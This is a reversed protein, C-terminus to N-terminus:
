YIPHPEARDDRQRPLPTRGSVPEVAQEAPHANLPLLTDSLARVVPINGAGPLPVTWVRHGSARLLAALQGPGPTGPPAPMPRIPEPDGGPIRRRMSEWIHGNAFYRVYRDALSAVEAPPRARAGACRPRVVGAVGACRPRVVGAAGACRPQVLGAAGARRSQVLGAAAERLAHELGMSPTTGAGCGLSHWPGSRAVVLFVTIGPVREVAVGITDVPGGVLDRLAAARADGLTVPRGQCRGWWWALVADRECLELVAAVTARDFTVGAALGNSTGVSQAPLGGGGGGLWVLPAPVLTVADGALEAAPLWAQCEDDRVWSRGPAVDRQRTLQQQTRHPVGGARLEGATSWTATRADWGHAAAREAAEGRAVARAEQETRGAGSGVVDFPFVEGSRTTYTGRARVHAVALSM